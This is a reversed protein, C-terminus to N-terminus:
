AEIAPGILVRGAVEFDDLGIIDIERFEDRAVEDEVRVENGVSM